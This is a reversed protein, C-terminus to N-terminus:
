RGGRLLAWGLTAVARWTAPDMRDLGAMFRAARTLDRKPFDAPMKVMMKMAQERNRVVSAHDAKGLLKPLQALTPDTCYAPQGIQQRWSDELPGADYATFGLREVLKMVSALANPEDSSVPLAIRGSAGKARGDHELSYDTINNFAKVVPTGLQRSVWESEALGLDVEAISGDRPPVYNTADVVPLGTKLHGLRKALAPYQGFPIACVLIDVDVAMGEIPIPTAGTESAFGTLTEPGRSNAVSVAHGTKTLRTALVAGLHGAGILGVKRM